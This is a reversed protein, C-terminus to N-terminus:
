CSVVCPAAEELLVTAQQADQPSDFGTLMCRENGNDFM